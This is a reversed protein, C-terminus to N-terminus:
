LGKIVHLLEKMVLHVLGVLPVAVFMGAPGWLYSCVLLSTIVVVPHIRLTKAQIMPYLINGMILNIAMLAFLTLLAKNIPFYLLAILFAVFGSIISGIFPIMNLVGAIVGLLGAFPLGLLVYLFGSVLGFAISYAVLNRMYGWIVKDVGQFVNNTAERLREPMICLVQQAMAPGDLLFCFVLITIIIVDTLRLVFGFVASVFGMIFSSVLASFQTLADDLSSTVRSDLGLGNLYGQLMDVQGLFRQSYGSFERVFTMTQNVVPPLIINILVILLALLLVLVIIIALVKKPLRLRTQALLVLPHILYALFVAWIVPVFAGAAKTLFWACILSMITIAWIKTNSM